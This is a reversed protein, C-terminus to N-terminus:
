LLSWISCGFQICYKIPQNINFVYICNSNFPLVHLKPHLQVFWVCYQQVTCFDLRISSPPLIQPVMYIYIISTDVIRNSGLVAVRSAFPRKTRCTSPSASPRSNRARLRGYTKRRNSIHKVATAAHEASWWTAQPLLLVANLKIQDRWSYTDIYSFCERYNRERYCAQKTVTIFEEEVSNELRTLSGQYESQFKERVFYPVSLHTTRRAM